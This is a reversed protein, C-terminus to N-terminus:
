LRWAIGAYDRSRGRELGNLVYIQGGGAARAAGRDQQFPRCLFAAGAARLAAGSPFRWDRLCQGQCPPAVGRGRPAGARALQGCVRWPRDHSAPRTSLIIVDM